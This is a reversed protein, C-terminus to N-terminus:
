AAKRIDKLTKSPKSSHKANGLIIKGKKKNHSELRGATVTADEEQKTTVIEEAKKQLPSGPKMVTPDHGEGTSDKLEAAKQEHTFTGNKAHRTYLNLKHYMSVVVDRFHELAKDREEKWTTLYEEKFVDDEPCPKPHKREWRQLKHQALREWYEERTMKKPSNKDYFIGLESKVRFCDTQAGFSMQREEYNRQKGRTLMYWPLRKRYRPKGGEHTIAGSYHERIWKKKEKVMKRYAQIFEKKYMSKGNGHEDIKLNVTMEHGFQEIKKFRCHEPANKITCNKVTNQRSESALFNKKRKKM